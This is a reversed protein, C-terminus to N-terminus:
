FVAKRIGILKGGNRGAGPGFLHIYDVFELAEQRHEVIVLARVRRSLVSLYSLIKACSVTDLGSCPEDIVLIKGAIRKQLYRALKLRKVEGGSLSETRRGLSLHGLGLKGLMDIAPHLLKFEPFDELDKLPLSSIEHFNIGRLTYNGIGAIRNGNCGQCEIRHQGFYADGIILEGVGGCVKCLNPNSTVYKFLVEPKDISFAFAKAVKDALSLYTSVTSRYNSHPLDQNIYLIEDSINAWERFFTSKGSGSPGMVCCFSGTEFPLSLESVNNKKIVPSFFVDGCQKYPVLKMSKIKPLESIDLSKAYGGRSGAVPGLSYLSNAIRLIEAVHDVLLISNGKKCIEKIISSLINYDEPYVNASIEDLVYLLGTMSSSAAKALRMKQLEGGSLSPISRSLKLHGLGLRCIYGFFQQLRNNKIQPALEGIEETLLKFFSIGAVSVAEYRHKEIGSGCCQSCEVSSSYLIALQRESKKDSVLYRNLFIMPGEYIERRSRYSKGFKYRFEIKRDSRGYVIKDYTDEDLDTININVPVNIHECYKILKALEKERNTASFIHFPFQAITKRSDVVKSEDIKFLVRGGQCTKCINEYNNLRLLSVDERSKLDSLILNQFKFYSFLTSLPNINKSKQKISIAPIINEFREVHYDASDNADGGIAKFESNCVAYVTGFALSSKGGGSIGALGVIKGQPIEISINKLNNTTVGYFGMYRSMIVVM